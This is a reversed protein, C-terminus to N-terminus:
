QEEKKESPKLLLGLSLLIMNFIALLQIGREDTQFGVFLIWLNLFIAGYSLHNFNINRM